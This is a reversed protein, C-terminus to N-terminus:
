KLKFVFNSDYFLLNLFSLSVELHEFNGVFNFLSLFKKLGCFTHQPRWHQNQHISGKESILNVFTEFSLIETSKNGTMKVSYLKNDRGFKDKYCSVLREFPHRLYIIKTWDAVNMM